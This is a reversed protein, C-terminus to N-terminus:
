HLEKKTSKRRVSFLAASGTIVDGARCRAVVPPSNIEPKVIEALLERIFDRSLQSM